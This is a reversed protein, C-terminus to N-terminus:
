PRVLEYSIGEEDLYKKMRRVGEGANFNDGRYHKLPDTDWRYEWHAYVYTYDEYQNDIHNSDYLVIHLQMAPEDDFGVKRWSGEEANTQDSRLHKLSALPNREFGMTDLEKEFSEEDLPVRGVFQNQHTESQVYLDAGTVDEVLQTIYGLKPIIARRVREIWDQKHGM